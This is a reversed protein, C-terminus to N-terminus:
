HAIDVNELTQTALDKEKEIQLKREKLQSTPASSHCPKGLLVWQTHIINGDVKMDAEQCRPEEKKRNRGVYSFIHKSIFM